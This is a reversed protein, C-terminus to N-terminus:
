DANPHRETSIFNREPNECFSSELSCLSFKNHVRSTERLKWKLALLEVLLEILALLEVLLGFYGSEKARERHHIGATLM